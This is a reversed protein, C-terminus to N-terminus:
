LFLLAIGRSGRQAHMVEELTFKVKVKARANKLLNKGHPVSVQIVMTSVPSINTIINETVLLWSQETPM